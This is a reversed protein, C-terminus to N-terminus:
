FIGDGEINTRNGRFFLMFDEKTTFM